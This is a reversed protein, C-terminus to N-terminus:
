IVGAMIVWNTGDSVLTAWRGANATLIAAAAAGGALPVVNSSASNTLQAQVTKITIERGPFASASPLTVTCSSGSKNNILYTETAAVTFDATKTVPSGPPSVLINNVYLGGAVNLTGTGKYGGTPSGIKVGNSWALTVTAVGSVVSTAQIETDESGDTPDLLLSSLGGVNFLNNASDRMQFIFGPGNDNVAPSASDRRLVFYPGGSASADTSIINVGTFFASSGSVNLPGALAAASSSVQLMSVGDVVTEVVTGTYDVYTNGLSAGTDGAYWSTPPVPAAAGLYIRQSTSLAIAAQNADFSAGALELGVRWEGYGQYIADQRESSNPSQIRVGLWPTRYGVTQTGTRSFNLILGLGAVDDFGNDDVVYEMAYVNPGDTIAGTHGGSVTASNRGTWSTASGWTAHAAVGVSGQYVNLDGYGTHTAEVDFVPVMTRGGGDTSVFEQYGAANNFNVHYGALDHIYTYTTPTGTYMAATRDARQYWQIGTLGVYHGFLSGSIDAGQLFASNTLTLPSGLLYTGPGLEFDGLGDAAAVAPRDNVIGDAVAGFMTATPLVYDVRVWAGSAGTPDIAPAVYIGEEPDAAVQASLNAGNWQFQGERGSERLWAVADKTQDLTALDARTAVYPGTDLYSRVDEAPELAVVPNAPDTADVDIGTGAVITEVGSPPVTANIIPNQATGTISVNSGATVSLVGTNSVVPNAPDTSDVSIGTGAGVSAVIGAEQAVGTSLSVWRGEEVRWIVRATDLPASVSANLAEADITDGVPPFILATDATTNLLFYPQFLEAEAPLIFATDGVSTGMAINTNTAIIETAGAQTTGNGDLPVRDEYGLRNAQEAPIGVAMLTTALSM